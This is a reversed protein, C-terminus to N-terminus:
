NNENKSMVEDYIYFTESKASHICFNFVWFQRKYFVDGAPTNPLPLFHVQKELQLSAKNEIDQEIVVPKRRPEDKSQKCFIVIIIIM